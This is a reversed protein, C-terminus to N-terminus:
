KKGKVVKVVCGFMKELETITVEKIPLLPLSKVNKGNIWYEVNGNSYEVAPGDLRHLKDNQHWLKNGDEDIIVKYEQIM